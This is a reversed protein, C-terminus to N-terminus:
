RVVTFILLLIIFGVVFAAIYSNTDGSEIKRLANSLTNINQVAEKLTSYVAYDVSEMIGSLLVSLRVLKYYIGNVLVNNYLFRYAPNQADISFNKSFFLFYSIIAGFAAIGVSEIIDITSALFRQNFYAPILSYFLMGFLVFVSFAYLSVTMSMPITKYNAQIESVRKESKKRLPVLLWRFIYISGLIEMAVLIIYVGLNNSSNIVASKGFFGGLPYLGAISATGIILPILLVMSRPGYLKEMNEENYNAKIISGASLFLLAKYFAQMVFLMMAAVISGAGLAVFMLGLDEITSYALIRKINLEALANTIAMISTVMGVVLLVYLMNYAAFVPLLVAILFVGAKVMTSSHLFASVPTPGKMADPLWEHFPFQASKTFAAIIILILALRVNPNQQAANQILISFSFSNYTNWILIMAFLMLVDGILIITIAKRAAQQTGDRQQWFGILLYSTVGLLAWGILMTLFDAAMAFLMMSAAFLCMEFYYRPQESPTGMFGISYLMIFPTIIGLTFLLLMNLPLTSTSIVFNYRLFSFWVFSQLKDPNYYSIIILILSSISAVLAIYKVNRGNRAMAAAAFAALVLPVIALIALM